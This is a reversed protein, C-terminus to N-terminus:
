ICFKRAQTNETGISCSSRNNQLSFSTWKIASSATAPFPLFFINRVTSVWCGGVLMVGNGRCPSHWGLPKHGLTMGHAFTSDRCRGITRDDRDNAPPIFSTVVGHGRLTHESVLSKRTPCALRLLHPHNRFAPYSWGPSSLSPPSISFSYTGKDTFYGWPKLVM